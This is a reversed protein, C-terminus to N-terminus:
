LNQNSESQCGINWASCDTNSSAYYGYNCTCINEAEFMNPDFCSMCLDVSSCTKCGPNCASCTTSSTEYYGENYYCIGSSVYSNNKLCTLCAGNM